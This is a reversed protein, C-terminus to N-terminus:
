AFYAFCGQKSYLIGFFLLITLESVGVRNEAIKGGSRNLEAIIKWQLLSGLALDIRYSEPIKHKEQGPKDTPKRFFSPGANYAFGEIKKPKERNERLQKIKQSSRCSGLRM